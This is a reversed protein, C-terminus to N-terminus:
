VFLAFPNATWRGPSHLLVAGTITSFSPCVSLQVIRCFPAASIAETTGLASSVVTRRRDDALVSPVSVAAAIEALFSCVMVSCFLVATSM